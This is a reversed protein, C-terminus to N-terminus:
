AGKKYISSTTKSFCVKCLSDTKLYLSFERLLNDKINCCIDEHGLIHISDSDLVFKCVEQVEVLRYIYEDDIINVFKCLLVRGLICEELYEVMQM